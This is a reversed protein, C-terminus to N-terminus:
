AAPPEDAPPPPPWGLAGRAPKLDRVVAIVQGTTPAKKPHLDIVLALSEASEPPWGASEAGMSLHCASVPREGV